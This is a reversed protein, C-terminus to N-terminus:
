KDDQVPEANNYREKGQLKMDTLDINFIQELIGVSKNYDANIADQLSKVGNKIGDSLLVKEQVGLFPLTSKLTTNMSDVVSKLTKMIVPRLAQMIIQQALEKPDELENFDKVLERMTKAFETMIKYNVESTPDDYFNSKATDFAENFDTLRSAFLDRPSKILSKTSVTKRTKLVTSLSVDLRMAIQENTCGDQLLKAVREELPLDAYYLNASQQKIEKLPAPSPTSPPLQQSPSSVVLASM